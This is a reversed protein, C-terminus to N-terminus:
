PTGCACKKRMFDDVTHMSNLEESIEQHKGGSASQKHTNPTRITSHKFCVTSRAYTM